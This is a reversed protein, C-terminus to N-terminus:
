CYPGVPRWRSPENDRTHDGSRWTSSQMGFDQLISKSVQSMFDSSTEHDDWSQNRGRAKGISILADQDEEPGKHRKRIGAGLDYDDSTLLSKSNLRFALCIM